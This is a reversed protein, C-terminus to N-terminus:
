RTAFAAPAEQDVIRLGLDVMRIVEDSADATRARHSTMLITRGRTADTLDALVQRELEGDLHATPEDLVLISPDALLARAVLLRQRQGGSLASGDPGAPSSWGDPMARVDALLGVRRAVDDLDQDTASPRVFRLNDRLSVDFVHDGQLSGAIVAPLDASRVESLAIEEGAATIAVTGDGVDAMRLVAGLLTSKGCGSPGVLTISRGPQLDFSGDCVVWREGPAPALYLNRVRLGADADPVLRHAAPEPLVTTRRTVDAVRTLGARCRAWAVFAAPLGGVSEFGVFVCIVVVGVDVASLQGSSRAAAVAMLVGAMTLAAVLGSGLMGAAAAIAPRRAARSVEADAAGVEAVVGPVAGYAFLEDFADLLESARRDRDGAARVLGDANAAVRHAALPVLLGGVVLGLALLAGAGPALAAALAVGGVMGAAAGCAPIAARVLGEQAGDVDAVFRRLLDGRRYSGAVTTPAGRLTAFIRVRLASLMRLAADHTALREGYRLLARGIAFSRVGVVAVALAQVNPHQAARSILWMSAATLGLGSLVTLVALLAAMSLRGTAGAARVVDWLRFDSVAPQAEPRVPAHEGLTSLGAAPIARLRTPQQTVIATVRGNRLRVRQDAIGALEESHTALVVLAWTRLEHIVAAVVWETAPDLDESPEDLLVIPVRGAARVARARLLVRALAIRRREGASVFRGDEGLPTDAPPTHCARCASEVDAADADPAGLRVEARVTAQSPRPRQPLWALASRWEGADLEDLGVAGEACALVVRGSAPGVFRLLTHLLTSKGAGSPGTLATVEGTRLVLDLGAVAPEARGPYGVTVDAFRVARLGGPLRGDAPAVALEDAEDVIDLAAAAATVGEEAAHHNAGMARLPAFLEPALMLVLLATGFGVHGGALRLGVDVAVFAVSLTALLDLVLGSLFATQLTRMTHVRYAESAERVTREQAEARGYIRLTTLGRLLDLFRGALRELIEHQREVQRKTVVGVLVMFLPVLPLLVLVILGSQWDAIGIRALVIAPVVAAAVFAPLARTLYGDLGDLGSGVVTVLRGPPQGRTWMPGLRTIADLTVQRLEARVRVSLRATLWEQFAALAARGAMVIAIAVTAGVVSRAAPREAFITVVTDAILTVQVIMLVAGVLQLLVLAGTLRRCSPVRHLLRPDVPRSM